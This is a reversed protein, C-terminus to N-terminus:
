RRRAENYNPRNVRVGQRLGARRPHAQPATTVNPQAIPAAPAAPPPPAAPAAPAAPVSSTEDHTDSVEIDNQDDARSGETEFDNDMPHHVPDSPWDIIESDARDSEHVQTASGASKRRPRGMDHGDHPSEDGHGDNESDDRRRKNGLPGEEPRRLVKETYEKDWGPPLYKVVLPRVEEYSQNRIPATMREWMQFGERTAILIEELSPREGYALRVCRNALNCLQPTYYNTDAEYTISDQAKTGELNIGDYKFKDYEYEKTSSSM